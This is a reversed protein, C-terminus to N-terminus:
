VAIQLFFTTSAAYTSIFYLWIFLGHGFSGRRMNPRKYPTKSDLSEGKGEGM